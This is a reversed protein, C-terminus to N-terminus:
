RGQQESRIEAIESLPSPTTAHMLYTRHQPTQADLAQVSRGTINKRMEADQCWQTAFASEQDERIPQKPGWINTTAKNRQESMNQCLLKQYNQHHHHHTVTEIEEEHLLERDANNTSASDQDEGLKINQKKKWLLPQLNLNLPLTATTPTHTHTHTQTKERHREGDKLSYQM